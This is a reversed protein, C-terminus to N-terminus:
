QKVSVYVRPQSTKSPHEPSFWRQTPISAQFYPYSVPTLGKCSGHSGAKELLVLLFQLPVVTPDTDDGLSPVSKKISTYIIDL